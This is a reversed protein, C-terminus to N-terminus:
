AYGLTYVRRILVTKGWIENATIVVTGAMDYLLSEQIEDYVFTSAFEYTGAPWTGASGTVTVDLNFGTGSPPYISYLEGATDFVAGSSATTLTTDNGRLVIADATSDTDNIAYYTGKDLETDMGVFATSVSSILTSTSGSSALATQFTSLSVVGSTPPSLKVDFTNWANAGTHGGVAQVSGASDLWRGSGNVYGYYKIANGTNATNTDCVRVAGDAIHYIVQGHEDAGLDIQDESWAGNDDAIDIRTDSTDDTDAIFTRVMPFNDGGADFDFTAQFLGYGPETADISPVTYDTTNDEFYSGNKILGFEDFMVNEVYALENNQISRSNTKTNLGGEFRNYTKFQKPM